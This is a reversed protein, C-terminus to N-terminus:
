EQTVCEGKFSMPAANPNDSTEWEMDGDDDDAPYTEEDEDSYDYYEEEVDSM